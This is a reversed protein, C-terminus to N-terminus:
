AWISAHFNPNQEIQNISHGCITQKFNHTLHSAFHPQRIRISIHLRVDLRFRKKAKTCIKCPHIIIYVQKRKKEFHNSEEENSCIFIINNITRKKM